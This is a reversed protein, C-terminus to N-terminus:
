ALLLRGDKHHVLDMGSHNLNLNFVFRNGGSGTRLNTAKAWGLITFSRLGELTDLPKEDKGVTVWSWPEGDAFFLSGDKERKVEGHFKVPSEDDTIGVCVLPAIIHYTFPVGCSVLTNPVKAQDKINKISLIYEAGDTLASPTLTVSRQDSALAAANISVDGDVAYNSANEASAREVPESFVVRIKEDAGAATEITPPTQDPHTVMCVSSSKMGEILCGNLAAIQYTYETSECLGTDVFHTSKSEAIRKRDHYIVYRRIGSEADKAAQWSLNVQTEGSAIARVRIPASPPTEDVVAPSQVIVRRYAFLNPSGNDRVTLIIHFENAQSDYPVKLSAKDAGANNIRVEDSYTSPEKYYWWKYSLSDGDPDSSGAASLKVTSGPIAQIRAISKGAVGNVVVRPNHNTEAFSKVCWDARAAWDNQFAESWRWIPKSWSGDDQAGRWVNKTGKERVFRGGWGGYSPHELSGLGVLIQHMFSPSDGESRFRSDRHAEYSACLPGHNQLINEKMWKGDYFEHQDQPIIRQWDYAITAFQRFSGLVMLDPWNPQIYERFTKDQDLIIYIIAKKSVKETQDPYEQQIKWLARAITNTGGWAQLYVPGPEDDLLVQVIRDSGPTDKSMEGVNDINGIYVLNKLEEPSPFDPDHKKLNKYSKAYLDIDEDIWKEGAWRHGKWHFKSSCIVIGEIDWENAYILFRVMSCRDDIEGDTTAIIRPKDRNMGYVPNSFSLAASAILLISLVRTSHKPNDMNFGELKMEIQSQSSM